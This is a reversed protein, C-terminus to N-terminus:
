HTALLNYLDDSRAAVTFPPRGAYMIFLIVGLSFLDVVQGSYPSKTLLEPAMYGPTGVKTTNYGSGDKGKLQCVFGFDIIKINYDKDM